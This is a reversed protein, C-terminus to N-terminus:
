PEPPTPSSAFQLPYRCHNLDQDDQLVDDDDDSEDSKYSTEEREGPTPPYYSSIPTAGSPMLRYRGPGTLIRAETMKHDEHYIRKGQEIAQPRNTLLSSMVQQAVSFPPIPLSQPRARGHNTSFSAPQPDIRCTGQEANYM